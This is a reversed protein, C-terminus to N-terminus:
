QGRLLDGLGNLQRLGGLVIPFQNNQLQNLGMDMNFLQPALSASRDALMAQLQTERADTNSRKGSAAAQAQLKARLQQAYPSNQGYLGQLGNIQQRLMQQQKRNNYLGFLTQALTGANNFAFQGLQSSSPLSFSSAKSQPLGQPSPSTISNNLFTSFDGQVPSNPPAYSQGARLGSQELVSVGPPKYGDAYSANMAPNSSLTPLDSLYSMDSPNFALSSPPTYNMQPGIGIDRLVGAGNPTYNSGYSANQEPSGYISNNDNTGSFQNWLGGFFDNAMNAGTSVGSNVVANRAADGPKMGKAIGSATGAITGNVFKGPMGTVGMAGAPNAGGIGGGVAGSFMGALPNQQNGASSIGGAAAGNVAGAAWGPSMGLSGALGGGGMAGGTVAAVGADIATSFLPNGENFYTSAYNKGNKGLNVSRWEGGLGDMSLQYGNKNLWDQAEPMLYHFDNGGNVDINTGWIDGGFGLPAWANQEFYSALNGSDQWNSWGAGMEADGDM